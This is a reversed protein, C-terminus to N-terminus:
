QSFCLDDRTFDQFNPNSVVGFIELFCFSEEGVGM